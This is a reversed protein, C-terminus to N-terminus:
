LTLSFVAELQLSSYLGFGYAWLRFCICAGLQLSCASYLQFRYATLAILGASSGNPRADRYDHITFRCDHFDHFTFRSVGRNM